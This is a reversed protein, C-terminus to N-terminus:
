VPTGSGAPPIRDPGSAMAAFIAELLREDEVPKRLFIMAGGSMARERAESTDNGTLVVIPLRIGTEALRAQVDFGNFHPMNLDLIVCDPYRSNLSEIFETGSSFTEVDLSASRLLRRLAVRVPEEDDVIAILTRNNGM